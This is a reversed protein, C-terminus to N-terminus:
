RPQRRMLNAALSVSGRGRPVARYDRSLSCVVAAAASIQHIHAAVVDIIGTFLFRIGVVDVDIEPKCCLGDVVVM